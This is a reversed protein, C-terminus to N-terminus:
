GDLEDLRAQLLSLREQSATLRERQTNVVKEPAKSTFQENSLLEGVRAIDAEVDDIEKRLREREADLDVMGALPLYIVADDVVLTVMSKAAEMPESRYELRDKGVRALFSFVEELNGFTEGHSGPYILASIWFSAEVGSEARANRVARVTDIM